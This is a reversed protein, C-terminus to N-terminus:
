RTRALSRAHIARHATKYAGLMARATAVDLSAKADVLRRLNEESPDAEFLSFGVAFCQWCAAVDLQHASTM